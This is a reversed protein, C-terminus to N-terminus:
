VVLCLPVVAFRSEFLCLRAPTLWNDCRAGYTCDSRSGHHFSRMNFSVATLSTSFENEM